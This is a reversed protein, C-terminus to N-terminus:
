GTEILLDVTSEDLSSTLYFILPLSHEFRDLNGKREDTM